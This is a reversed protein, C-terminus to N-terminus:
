QPGGNKLAAVAPDNQNGDDPADSSDNAGWFAAADLADLFRTEYVNSNDEDGNGETKKNSQGKVDCQKRFLKGDEEVFVKLFPHREKVLTLHAEAAERGAYLVERLQHVQTSSINKRGDVETKALEAIREELGNINHNQVWENNSNGAMEGLTYPKATLSTTGDDVVMRERIAGLDTVVADYLIHFDLTSCRKEGIKNLQKVPRKASAILDEALQYAQFFPFHPKMIAVGASATVRDEQEPTEKLIAKIIESNHTEEEFYELYRKTFPLAELGDCILTVDDGGLVLPIIPVFKREGDASKSNGLIAHLFATETAEELACSFERLNPVYKERSEGGYKQFNLFVLGLGNGDIHVVSLWSLGEIDDMRNPNPCFKLDKIEYNQQTSVNRLQSSEVINKLRDLWGKQGKKQHGGVNQEKAYSSASLERWEKRKNPDGDLTENFLGYAPGGSSQCPATIPLMPHRCQTGARHAQIEQLKQHAKRVVEGFCMEDADTFEYVVGCLNLGPAKKLAMRTALEVIKKGKAEDEVLLMAKGSTAIIVEIDNKKPETLIAERLKPPDGFCESYDPGKESKVAELVFETCARYTLESAGINERLRNSHFIYRQNGGTELIVLFM